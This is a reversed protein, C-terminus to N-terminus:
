FTMHFSIKSAGSLLLVEVSLMPAAMGLTKTKGRVEATLMNLQKQILHQACCQRQFTYRNAHSQKHSDGPIVSFPRSLM